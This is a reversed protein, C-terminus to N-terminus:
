ELFPVPCKTSGCGAVHFHFLALYVSRHAEILTEPIYCGGYDGFYGRSVNKREYEMEREGTHEFFMESSTVGAKLSATFHKLHTAIEM